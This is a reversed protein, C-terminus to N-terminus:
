YYWDVIVDRTGRHVPLVEHTTSADFAVLAGQQPVVVTREATGSEGSLEPFVLEGGGFEGPLPDPSSSNLFVVVSILRRAAGAWGGDAIRDRHRGYFGGLEYRLFAAGERGEVPIQCAAAIAPRAADLVAEIKDLVLPDIEISSASRASVDLTAGSNLVEAPESM